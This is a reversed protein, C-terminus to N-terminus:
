GREHHETSLWRVLGASAHTVLTHTEVISDGFHVGDLFAGGTVGTAAFIIDGPVLDAANRKRLPDHLGCAAVLDHQEQGLPALQVEIQGGLCFLGAAALVGERAGGIGMYLDIGSSAPDATEIIGSVDGDSILQVAAGTARIESILDAHRSRDLVCVTLERVGVGKAKALANINDAPSADLDILGEPYGPGVAIKKMYVDPVRLMDGRPAIAMVSLANPLAKACLTAGELAVLALDVPLGGAGAFPMNQGRAGTADDDSTGGIVVQAEAAFLALAADQARTAADDAAQEDGRGRFQAAALAAAETIRAADFALIFPLASYAQKAAMTTEGDADPKVASIPRDPRGVMDYGSLATRDLM